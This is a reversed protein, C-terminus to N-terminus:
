AALNGDISEIGIRYRSSVGFVIAVNSARPVAMMALTGCCKPTTLARLMHGALDLSPADGRGASPSVIRLTSERLWVRDALGVLVPLCIWIGDNATLPAVRRSGILGALLSPVASLNMVRALALLVIRQGRYTSPMDEEQESSFRSYTM